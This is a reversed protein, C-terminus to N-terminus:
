PDNGEAGGVLAIGSAQAMELVATRGSLRWGAEVADGLPGMVVTHRNAGGLADLTGEGGDAMPVGVWEAGHRTAARGIAAAVQRATATGRFKDPAAVVQM